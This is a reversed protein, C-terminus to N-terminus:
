WYLLGGAYGAHSALITTDRVGKQVALCDYITAILLDLRYDISGWIVMQSIAMRRPTPQSHGSRSM